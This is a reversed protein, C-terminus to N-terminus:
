ELYEGLFLKKFFEAPIEDPGPARKTPLDKAALAVEARDIPPVLSWKGGQFRERIAKRTPNFGKMVIKGEASLKVAFHRALAEVKDKPHVIWEGNEWIPDM